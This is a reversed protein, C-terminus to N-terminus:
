KINRRDDRDELRSIRKDTLTDFTDYVGFKGEIHTTLINVADTVRLLGTDLSSTYHIFLFGFVSIAAAGAWSLIQHVLRMWPNDVFQALKSNDTERRRHINM